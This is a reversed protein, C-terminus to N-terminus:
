RMGRLKRKIRLVKAAYARSRRYCKNGSNYHCLWDKGFRGRWYAIAKVAAKVNTKLDLLEDCSYKSWRKNIQLLGCDGKSSMAKPNWRSEVWAMAALLYPDEGQGILAPGVELARDAYTPGFLMMSILM